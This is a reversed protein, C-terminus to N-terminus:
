KSPLGQCVNEKVDVNGFVRLFLLLLFFCCAERFSVYYFWFYGFYGLFSSFLVPFNVSVPILGGPPSRHNWSRSLSTVPNERDPSCLLNM